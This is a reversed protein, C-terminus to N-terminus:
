LKLYNLHEAKGLEGSVFTNFALSIRENDGVKTPVAHQLSSPFLVLDGTKIKLACEIVNYDTYKIIPLEIQNYKPNFFAIEDYQEDANFYFVGSVLSNPHNHTHHYENKNTYNLWSQTVKLKTIYPNSGYIIEVYDYLCKDIFQKLNKFEQKDLIFSDNTTKNGFNNYSDNKYFTISKVLEDSIIEESAFKMVPTAFLNYLQHKM